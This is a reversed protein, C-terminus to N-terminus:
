MGPPNKRRRFLNRSALKVRVQFDFLHCSATDRCGAFIRRAAGAPLRQYYSREFFILLDAGAMDKHRVRKMGAWHIVRPPATRRSVSEADLGDLSHGPWRMIERRDIRLGAHIAKQNFVYNLVGQEGNMFHRPPTTKRPLTWEIWPSFDDRKLVGATGFWQGTNFLFAPRRADPDIKRVREWDYYIEKTRAESQAEDDVLFPAQSEAWADLVPGTLVTDSDLVLFREGVPGFLPELKVFGWGYEGRAPPAAIGVKWYHCLEDALGAQLRGGVLLRIPIGPYFYRISAV